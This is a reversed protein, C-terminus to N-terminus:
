LYSMKSNEEMNLKGTNFLYQGRDCIFLIENGIWYLPLQPTKKIRPCLDLVVQFWISYIHTLLSNELPFFIKYRLSIVGENNESFFVLLIIIFINKFFKSVNNFVIKTVIAFIHIYGSDQFIGVTFEAWVNPLLPSELSHITGSSIIVKNTEKRTKSVM